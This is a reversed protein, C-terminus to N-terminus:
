PEPSPPEGFFYFVDACGPARNERSMCRVERLVPNQGRKPSKAQDGPLNEQNEMGGGDEQGVGRRLLSGRAIIRCDVADHVEECDRSSLVSFQSNRRAAKVSTIKM